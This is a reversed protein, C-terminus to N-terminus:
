AESAVRLQANAYYDRVSMGCRRWPTATSPAIRGLMVYSSSLRFRANRFEGLM